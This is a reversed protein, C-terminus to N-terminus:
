VILRTRLVAHLTFLNFGLGPVYFVDVLTLREDTSGHFVVDTNGVYEVRLRRGDGITKSERGPLLSRLDYVNSKNFTM